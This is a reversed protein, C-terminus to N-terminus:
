ADPDYPVNPDPRGGEVLWSHDLIKDNPKMIHLREYDLRELEAKTLHDNCVVYMLEELIGIPLVLTAPINECFMCGEWLIGVTDKKPDM